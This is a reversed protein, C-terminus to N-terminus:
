LKVNSIKSAKVFNRFTLILKKIDRNTQIDTQGDVHFLEAGVPRIHFIVHSHPGPPETPITGSNSPKVARSRNGTSVLNEARGFQGQPGGLKMYFPGSPPYLYLQVTGHGRCYFTHSHDAAREPRVKGGPFSGTGM